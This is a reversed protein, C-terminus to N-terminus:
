GPILYLSQVLATANGAKLPVGPSSSIGNGRPSDLPTVQGESRPLTAWAVFIAKYSVGVPQFNKPFKISAFLSDRHPSSLKPVPLDSM